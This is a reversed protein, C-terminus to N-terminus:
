GKLRLINNQKLRKAGQKTEATHFGNKDITTIHTPKNVITQKLSRIEKVFEQTSLGREVNITPLAMNNMENYSIIDNEGLAPKMVKEYWSEHSTYIKDGQDLWRMNAGSEGFSKINGKNDTHVEPRKEDVMAWGQPANETGRFFEPVPTSAILAIQAAGIGGIISALTTASIGGDFKPVQALASVIGQATNFVTNVIAMKKESRAQREQIVKRQAEYQREIEAQATTSEGAFQIAIDRRKELVEYEQDFNAQQTQALFNFAEQGIEMISNAWVGWKEDDPAEELLKKFKLVRDEDLSLMDGLFDFGVDGFFDSKFSEFFGNISKKAEDADETLTKQKKKWRDFFKEMNELGTTVDIGSISDKLIDIYKTLYISEETLPEYLDLVEEYIKIQKEIEQRVSKAGKQEAVTAKEIAKRKDDIAKKIKKSSDLDEANANAEAELQEETKKIVKDIAKVRAFTRALKSKDYVDERLGLDEIFKSYDSYLSINDVIMKAQSNAFEISSKANGGIKEGNEFIENGLSQELSFRDAVAQNLRLTKDTILNLGDEQKKFLKQYGSLNKEAVKEVDTKFAEKVEEAIGSISELIGSMFSLTGKFVSQLISDSGSIDRVFISWANSLRTQAAQLTDIKKVSEIGYAKELAVAFKPLAEASLIEGAKLMKDLKSVSVDLADAMIGFAGPLREGLQRRLEETTVKGKSLMQELALYVGQLEDTKLGLVGAAKTVSGFIQQTKKLELGSQQAAANFKIYRETTTVLEAGYAQTIEDLFEQTEALEIADPITKEMSFRLGDFTKTLNYINPIVNAALTAGGFLGFAGVLSSIGGVAGRIGGKSLSLFAKNAKSTKNTVKDYASQMRKTAEADRGKTIILNNLEAKMRKQQAILREYATILKNNSNAQLRLSSLTKKRTENEILSVNNTKKKVANLKDIQVQQNKITETLKKFEADYKKLTDTLENPSSAGGMKSVLALTKNIELLKKDLKEVETYINKITGIAASEVQSFNNEMQKKEKRNSKKM